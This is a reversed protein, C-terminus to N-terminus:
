LADLKGAEAALLQDFRHTEEYRKNLDIFNTNRRKPFAKPHLRARNHFNPQERPYNVDVFYGGHKIHSHNPEGKRAVKNPQFLPPRQIQSFDMMFSEGAYFDSSKGPNARSVHILAPTNSVRPPEQTVNTEQCMIDPVQSASAEQPRKSGNAVSPENIHQQSLSTPESQSMVEHGSAAATRKGTAATDARAEEKAECDADQAPSNAIPVDVQVQQLLSDPLAHQSRSDSFVRSNAARRVNRPPSWPAM